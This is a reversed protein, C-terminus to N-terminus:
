KIVVIRRGKTFYIGGAIPSAVRRGALDYLPPRTQTPAPPVGVAPVGVTLGNSPCSEGAANTSRVTYTAPPLDPVMFTDAAGAVASHSRVLSPLGNGGVLARYLRVSTLHAPDNGPTCGELRAQVAPATFRLVVTTLLQVLIM